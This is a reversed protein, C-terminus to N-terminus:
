KAIQKEDKSERKRKKRKKKNQNSSSINTRKILKNNPQKELRAQNSKTWKNPQKRRKFSMSNIM